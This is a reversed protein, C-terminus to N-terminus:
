IGKATVAQQQEWREIEDLRFRVLKRSLRYRRPFGPRRSMNFATARSVGFRNALHTYSLYTPTSQHESM